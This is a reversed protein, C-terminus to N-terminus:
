EFVETLLKEFKSGIQITAEDVDTTLVDIWHVYLEGKEPNVDITLTGPTLTISNALVTIGSEKKLNTKIKVIGPKIPVNPHIVIYAVHVNAKVMEFLFKFFYLVASLVRHFLGKQKESTILFHGAILSVSAALVVGVLVEQWNGIETLALWVLLALVFVVLRSKAKISM